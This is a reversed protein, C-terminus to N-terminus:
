IIDLVKYNYGELIKKNMGKAKKMGLKRTFRKMFGNMEEPYSYIFIQIPGIDVSVMKLINGLLPGQKSIKDIPQYLMWNNKYGRDRIDLGEKQILYKM